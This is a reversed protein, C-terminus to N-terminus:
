MFFFFSLAFCPHLATIKGKGWLRWNACIHLFCAPLTQHTGALVRNNGGNAPLVYAGVRAAPLVRLGGRSVPLASRDTWFWVLSSCAIM